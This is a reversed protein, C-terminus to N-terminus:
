DEAVLKNLAAVSSDSLQVDLAYKLGIHAASVDLLVKDGGVMLVRASEAGVTM